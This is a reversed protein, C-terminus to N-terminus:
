KFRLLRSRPLKEKFKKNANFNVYNIFISKFYKAKEILKAFIALDKLM